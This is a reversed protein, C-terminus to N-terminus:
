FTEYKVIVEQINLFAVADFLNTVNFDVMPQIATIM